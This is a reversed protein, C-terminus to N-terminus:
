SKAGFESLQKVFWDFTSSCLLSYMPKLSSKQEFIQAMQHPRPLPKVQRQDHSWDWSSDARDRPSQAVIAYRNPWSRVTITLWSRPEAKIAGTRDRNAQDHHSWKRDGDSPSGARWFTGRMALTLSPDLLITAMQHLDHPQDRNRTQHCDFAGNRDVRWCTLRGIGRSSSKWSRASRIFGSFIADNRWDDDTRHLDLLGSGDVRRWTLPLNMESLNSNVCTTNNRNRTSRDVRDVSRSRTQREHHRRM